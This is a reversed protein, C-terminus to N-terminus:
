VGGIIVGMLPVDWNNSVDLTFNRNKTIEIDITKLIKFFYKTNTATWVSDKFSQICFEDLNKLIGITMGCFINVPLVISM